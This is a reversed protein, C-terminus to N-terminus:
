LVRAPEHGLSPAPHEPAARLAKAIEIWVETGYSQNMHTCDDASKEVGTLLRVAGKRFEARSFCSSVITTPPQPLLRFGEAIACLEAEAQFIRHLAALSVLVQDSPAADANLQNLLVEGPLPVPLMFISVSCVSRVMRMVLLATTHELWNRASHRLFSNSVLTSEERVAPVTYSHLGLLAQLWNYFGFRLGVCCIADFDSPRLTTSGGSVIKLKRTLANNTPVLVDGDLSLRSLANAPAGFFNCAIDPYDAEVADWGLKVAALHSNGIFCVRTM